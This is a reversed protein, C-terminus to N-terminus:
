PARALREARAVARGAAVVRGSDVPSVLKRRALDNWIAQSRRHVDLAAARYGHRDSGALNRRSAMIEYADGVNTFAAAVFARPFAYSSDVTIARASRTAQTCAGPADSRGLSALTKCIRGQDELVALKSVLRATDARLERYHSTLARRFHALAEEHQGLADLAEGIRCVLFSSTTDQALSQRYLGLAEAWRNMWTLTTAQYYRATLLENAYTANDPFEKTLQARLAVSRRQSELAGSLDAAESQADGLHGYAVSM